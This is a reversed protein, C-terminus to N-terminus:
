REDDNFNEALFELWNDIDNYIEPSINSRLLISFNEKKTKFYKVQDIIREWTGSGDLLIRSKDHTKKMGDITIQYHEVGAQLLRDILDPTLLYANTTMGAQIRAPEPLKENEEKLEQLFTIISEAELTPEGGFFSLYVNKFHREKIQNIILTKTNQYITENMSKPEAIEYCYPCKFNCNRTVIMTICLESDREFDFFRSNLIAMENEDDEVVFGYDLLAKPFEMSFDSEISNTKEMEDIFQKYEVDSVRMVANKMTNHLIYSDKERFVVTFKSKRM